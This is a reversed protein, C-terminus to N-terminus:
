ENEITYNGTDDILTLRYLKCADFNMFDVATGAQDTIRMDFMCTEGYTEPITVKIETGSEFLYPYIDNGWQDQEAPSVHVSNLTIGTNNKVYFYLAQSNASFSFIGLICLIAVSTILKKM